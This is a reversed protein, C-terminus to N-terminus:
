FNIAYVKFIQWWMEKVDKDIQSWKTWNGEFKSEIIARIEHIVYTSPIFRQM